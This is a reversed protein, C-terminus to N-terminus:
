RTTELTRLYAMLNELQADTFDFRHARVGSQRLFAPIEEAPTEFARRSPLHCFVCHDDFIASGRDTPSETDTQSNEPSGGRYLPGSDWFGPESCGICPHGAEVPWSTRDNWRVVPCANHTEPGRCGLARLCWGQRAGADGFNGAFRGEVFHHYRNCREHVTSGYFAKPRYLEDLAPFRDFVLLHALVAGLVDPIPPCGPLNVLPRRPIRGDRMLTSVDVAGTPNPEAQPLGGFAACTGVAIVAAASATCEWLLDLSSVGAITSYGGDAGLPVSGDVILLVEGPSAAMSRLRAFEAREGAAAQLTHHYDLSLLDLLLYEFTPAESRTVSETCGTCAQFSLWIAPRRKADALVSAVLPALSPPMALLSVVGMALKLWARRSLRLAAQQPSPWTM